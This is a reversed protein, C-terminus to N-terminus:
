LAFTEVAQRGRQFVAAANSPFEGAHVTRGTQNQAVCHGAADAALLATGLATRESDDAIVLSRGLVDALVQCFWPNATM